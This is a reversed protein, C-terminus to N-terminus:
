SVEQIQIDKEKVILPFDKGNNNKFLSEEGKDRERRRRHTEYHM